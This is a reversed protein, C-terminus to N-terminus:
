KRIERVYEEFSLTKEEAQERLEVAYRSWAEFEARTMKKKMCRAYHAKYAKNYVSWIPDEKCKTDYKKRASVMRCTKTKDKPLPNECYDSYMGAPLLFWKGCNSCRKPIYNQLLGRFFDEYLFAGLRGFDFSACLMSKGKEAAFVEHSSSVPVPGHLKRYGSAGPGEAKFFLAFQNAMENETLFSHRIHLYKELLPEYCCQVRLVDEIWDIYPQLTQRIAENLEEIRYMTEIAEQSDSDKWYWDTNVPIFPILQCHYDPDDDDDHIGPLDLEAGDGDLLDMFEYLFRKLRNPRRDEWDAVVDYPPLKPWIKDIQDLTKQVWKVNRDYIEYRQEDDFDMRFMLNKMGDTLAELWALLEDTQLNLYATLIENSRYKYKRNIYVDTGHFMAHFKKM